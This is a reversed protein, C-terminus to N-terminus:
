AGGKVLLDEYLEVYKKAVVKSDFEEVVKNRANRSLGLYDASKIVYEIGAALDLTDFPQAKYGNIKHDVIDKPGTSDFCVVPTGCAMAESVTQGFPEQISPVVMVDAASYLSALLSDDDLRGLYHTKIDLLPLDNHQLTGFVALECKKSWGSAALLQLAEILLHYGKRRDTTGNIAGFLIINKNAPLNYHCRAISKDYPKFITTDLGNPIVVVRNNRFLSSARACDALWNSPAVLTMDLNRWAMQKRLFVWRSLDYDGKSGLVPCAGCSQCYKTCEFPIHCGGTFAWSDHLTWVLPRKLKQLNELRLFGNAMWNLHIIDPNMCDIQNLINDRVFAPTFNLLPRKKYFRVPLADLYIKLHAACKALCSQPSIVDLTANSQFQVLVQSAIGISQLGTNLRLVARAAGGVDYSNLLLLKM